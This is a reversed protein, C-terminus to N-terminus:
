RASCRSSGHPQPERDTLHLHRGRGCRRVQQAPQGAAGARPRVHDPRQRCRATRGQLPLGVDDRGPLDNGDDDRIPVVLCHVGHNVPKEDEATILQAFVAAVRATEAAGGIYDKRSTQTPSDIVFEDTAVDYTATTELSQVDSGHGTETM